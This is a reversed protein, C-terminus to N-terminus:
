ISREAPDPLVVPAAAAPGPTQPALSPDATMPALLVSLVQDRHMELGATYRALLDAFCARDQEPWDAVIPAMAELRRERAIRVHELGAPTAALVSARGDAPDATREILGSRVLSAVQRSVTSPDASMEAALDSARKPGGKVLRFLLYLAPLETDSAMMRVKIAGHAQVLSAM